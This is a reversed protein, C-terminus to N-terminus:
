EVPCSGPRICASKALIEIAHQGFKRLEIGDRALEPHKEIVGM